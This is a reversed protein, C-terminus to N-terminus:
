RHAFIKSAVETLGQAAAADRFQNDLRVNDLITGHTLILMSIIGRGGTKKVHGGAFFFPGSKGASM